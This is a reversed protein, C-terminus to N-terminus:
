DEKGKTAWKLYGGGQRREIWSRGESWEQWRKSWRRKVRKCSWGVYRLGHLFKIHRMQKNVNKGKMNPLNVWVIEQPNPTLPNTNLNTIIHHTTASLFHICPILDEHGNWIPLCARLWSDKICTIKTLKNPTKSMTKQVLKAMAPPM